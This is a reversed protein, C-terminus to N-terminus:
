PPLAGGYGHTRAQSKLHDEIGDADLFVRTRAGDSWEIHGEYVRWQESGDRIIFGRYGLGPPPATPLSRQLARLRRILHEAQPANLTWTPNPRGSYTDLEVHM